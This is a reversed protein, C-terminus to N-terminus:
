SKEIENEVKTRQDVYLPLHWCCSRRPLEVVRTIFLNENQAVFPYTMLLWKHAANLETLLLHLRFKTRSIFNHLLYALAEYADLLVSFFCIGSRLRACFSQTQFLFMLKSQWSAFSSLATPRLSFLKGALHLPKTNM